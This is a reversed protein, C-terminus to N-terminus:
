NRRQRLSYRTNPTARPARDDDLNLSKIMSPSPNGRSIDPFRLRSVPTQAESAASSASDSVTSTPSFPSDQLASDFSPSFSLSPKPRRTAPTYGAFSTTPTFSPQPTSKMRTAFDPFINHHRQPLTSPPSNSKPSMRNNATQPRRAQPSGAYRSGPSLSNQSMNFTTFSGGASSSPSPKKETRAESETEAAKPAKKPETPNTYPSLLPGLGFMEHGMMFSVLYIGANDLGVPSDLQRAQVVALYVCSVLEFLSLLIETVNWVLMPKMLSELFSFAAVLFSIGLVVSEISKAPETYVKTSMWLVVCSSLLIIRLIHTPSNGSVASRQNISVQGSQNQQANGPGDAISFAQDFLNELGTEATLGPPFFKPAAFVANTRVPKHDQGEEEEGDEDDELSLRTPQLVPAQHFPNPKKQIQEVKEAVPNRLNWSPPKPVQPLQGQFLMSSSLTQTQQTVPKAPVKLSPRSPTWDMADIDDRRLDRPPTPPVHPEPTALRRPALSAIPFRQPVPQRGMESAQSEQPSSPRTGARSNTGSLLEETNDHWDVLPRKEFKITSISAFTTILTFIAVFAHISPNLQPHLGTIAPDQLGAWAMFRVMLAVIQIRYYERLGILRGHHGEVKLRLKPNWWLSFAGLILSLGAYPALFTACEGPIRRNNISSAVCYSGLSSMSMSAVEVEQLQYASSAFAVVDWVLQGAVSSWFSFAGTSVLLGKWRWMQRRQRSSRGKSREMMRRLHDTKAAYGTQRIRDVVRPKCKECVQPYREELSRKYSPYSKEYAAYEPHSPDPLYSALTQTFLYQNKQCTSCFITSDATSPQEPQEEFSQSLSPPIPAAYQHFRKETSVEAVPPDTIEGNEDLYNVAQCRECKWRRVANKYIQKSNGGCYFCRLRKQFFPAM